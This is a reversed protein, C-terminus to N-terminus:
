KAIPEITFIRWSAQIQIQFLLLSILTQIHWCCSWILHRINVTLDMFSGKIGLHSTCPIFHIDTVTWKCTSMVTPSRLSQSSNAQPRVWITTRHKKLNISKEYIVWILWVFASWWWICCRAKREGPLTVAKSILYFIIFKIIHLQLYILLELPLLSELSSSACGMSQFCISGRGFSLFQAKTLGYILCM